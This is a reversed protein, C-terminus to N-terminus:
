LWPEGLSSESDNLSLDKLDGQLSSLAKESTEGGGNLGSNQDGLVEHVKASSIAHAAAQNVQLDKSTDSSSLLAESMKIRSFSLIVLTKLQILYDKTIIVDYGCIYRARKWSYFICCM